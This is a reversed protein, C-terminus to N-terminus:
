IQIIGVSVKVVQWKMEDVDLVHVDNFWRKSKSGGFLYLCRVAPDFVATHGMRAEPKQGQEVSTEPAHWRHRGSIYFM